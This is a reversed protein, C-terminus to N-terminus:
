EADFDKIESFPCTTVQSEWSALSPGPTLCCFGTLFPFAAALFAAEPSGATRMERLLVTATPHLQAWGPFGEGEGQQSTHEGPSLQQLPEYSLGLTQSTLPTRVPLFNPANMVGLEEGTLQERLLLFFLFCFVFWCTIIYHSQRPLTCGADRASPLIRLLSRACVWSNLKLLM